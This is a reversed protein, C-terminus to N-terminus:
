ALAKKINKAIEKIVPVVVANGAQKYLRSEAMAPPFVPKEFGMLAFCEAPTLKRIGHKTKVIPVNHGGMGMNATLTPCVGSKNERVYQRRWQYVTKSDTVAAKLAEYMPRANTYYYKDDMKTEFDIFDSLPRQPREAEKGAPFNFKEAAKADRFAVIYIRERNQPIGFDKSNLVASKVSYRHKLKVGQPDGVEGELALKITKFTNGNDHSELNKVNELFVVDPQLENILRHIEWFVNGREDDFGKRYGAVSFPQCPFGGTLVSVKNSSDRLLTAKTVNKVDDVVLDHKHNLAYTEAAYSDIENAVLPSFGAKKFGLEIGGVGAFLDVVTMENNPM